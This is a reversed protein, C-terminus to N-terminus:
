GLARRCLRAPSTHSRATGGSGGGPPLASVGRGGTDLSGCSRALRSRGPWAPIFACLRPSGWGAQVWWKGQMPLVHGSPPQCGSAPAPEAEPVWGTGRETRLGAPGAQSGQAQGRSLQAAGPTLGSALARSGWHEWSSARHASPSCLPVPCVHGQRLARASPPLSPPSAALSTAATRPASCGRGGPFCPVPRVGPPTRPRGTGPAGWGM